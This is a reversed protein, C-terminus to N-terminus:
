LTAYKLCKTFLTQVFFVSKEFNKVIKSLLHITDQQEFVKSHALNTSLPLMSPMVIVSIALFSLIGGRVTSRRIWLAPMFGSVFSATYGDSVNSLILSTFIPRGGFAPGSVGFFPLFYGWLSRKIKGRKEMIM